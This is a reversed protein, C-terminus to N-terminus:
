APHGMDPVLNDPPSRAEGVPHDRRGDAAGRASREQGTEERVRRLYPAVVGATPRDLLCTHLLAGDRYPQSPGAIPRPEDALVQILERAGRLRGAPIDPM